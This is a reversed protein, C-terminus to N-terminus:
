NNLMKHIQEKHEKCNGCKKGKHKEEEKGCHKCINKIKTNKTLYKEPNKNFKEVCDDCCFYYTKGKYETKPSDKTPIFETKMVPCILKNEIISNETTEKIYKDSDKRFKELCNICCFYYTKDNYKLKPTDKTIAQKEQSVPCIFINGINDTSIDSNKKITNNQASIVATFTALAIIGIISSIIKKM